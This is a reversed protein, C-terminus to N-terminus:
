LEKWIAAASDGYLVSSHLEKAISNLIWSTVMHNSRHWAALTPDTDAPTPITGDVLGLKNKAGLAITMSRFWSSFNNGSEDLVQSVLIAGPNDSPHHYLPNATPDSNVTSSVMSSSSSSSSSASTAM